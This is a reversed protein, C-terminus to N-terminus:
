TARRPHARPGGGQAARVEVPPRRGASSTSTTACCSAAAVLTRPVGDVLAVANYGFTSQLATHKFLKNLVVQPIAERKLEISSGCAPSTRSTELDRIESLSGTKVLEAIKAIVGEDGGKKVGYPLENVVIATRGGRQEEVHTTRAHRGPRPRLPVGRPDGRPRPHDRRDPLRPGQHARAAARRRHTPDDILAVLADVVEGLNHPPINTAM